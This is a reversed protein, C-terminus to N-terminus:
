FDLKFPSGKKDTFRVANSVINSLARNLLHNDGYFFDINNATKIKIGKKKIDASFRNIIENILEQVIIKEKKANIGPTELKMLEELGKILIELNSIEKLNKEIHNTTLDLLGDKMGEFQARLASVPTKLDHTIDHAWQNRLEKEKKLQQALKNTAQAIYKIEKVSKEPIRIDLFGKAIQKLSDAVKKSYASLGHPDFIVDM